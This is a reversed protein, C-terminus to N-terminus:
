KVHKRAHHRVAHRSGVDGAPPPTYLVKYCNGKIVDIKDAYVTTWNKGNTCQITDKVGNQAYVTSTGAGITISDGGSGAYVTDNGSGLQITNGTPGGYVIDSGSGLQISNYGGGGYAVDSGSGAQIYDPGSGKIPGHQCYAGGPLGNPYDGPNIGPPCSGDGDLVDNGNGAQLIDSGGLGWLTDNANGAQLIDNGSSGVLTGDGFVNAALAASALVAALASCLLVATGIRSFRRLM